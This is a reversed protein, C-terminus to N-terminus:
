LVKASAEQRAEELALYEEDSLSTPIELAKQRIHRLVKWDSSNLFAIANESELWATKAAGYEHADYISQALKQEKSIRGIESYELEVAEVDEESAWISKIVKTAGDRALSVKLSQGPGEGLMKSLHPMYVDKEIRISISFETM